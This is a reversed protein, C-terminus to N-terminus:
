MPIMRIAGAQITRYGGRVTCKRSQRNVMHGVSSSLTDSPTALVESYRVGGSLAQPEVLMQEHMVVARDVDFLGDDEM